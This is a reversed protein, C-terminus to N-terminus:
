RHNNKGYEQKIKDAIGRATLGYKELLISRKGQAIFECPLGMRIVVLGTAESVASGFGGDIIGEEVTFILKSNKSLTKFLAADLPKVFRSNVVAAEIGEKSLEEAAVLANHLLPGCGIIAVRRREEPAESPRADEIDRLVLAKGIEFPTEETTFIPTKERAFRLYTPQNNFAAALTAKQSELADCPVVVIM